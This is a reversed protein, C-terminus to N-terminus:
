ITRIKLFANGINDIIDSALISEYGLRAAGIDGALGHIYVGAVAANEPSYEQALLSLIIGTLVDGSGATAMGPNGTSNFFVKGDPTVISTNAGKLVVVCGFKGAFEIQRELRHYSDKTKGAIREFEKPHPTLVAQPPLKLLWKKNLGIINLADADIVMPRAYSFLLKNLAKRTIPDTGIGPGIGIADYKDTEDIESTIRENKDIQVMAEPVSTQVIETGRVPVHCTLLGIGTRLAARAGMVAAGMRGYAGAVLLGHGFNGKHEFKKRKRLLSLVFDNELFNYPTDTTRIGENSLGIPLVHWEGVYKENEPFMFCLKPFQFSLTFDARIISDPDNTSNDECFLGSPIDVSIVTCDTQNVKKIVQAALGEAPRQLGTGFIADIIVDEPDTLPFQDPDNITNISVQTETELRKRNVNWDESTRGSTRIYFVEANFRTLSLLRALALGDGGNNGPGSFIITRRSRDYNRAYWKFLQGAAREMLDVSAIPENRITFSDIERVQGSRFIKM